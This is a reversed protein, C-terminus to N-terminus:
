RPIAVGAGVSSTATSLDQRLSKRGKRLKEQEIRDKAVKLADADQQSPLDKTDKRIEPAAVIQPASPIEPPNMGLVNDAFSNVATGM